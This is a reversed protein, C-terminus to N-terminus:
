AAAFHYCTITMIFGDSTQTLTMDTIRYLESITSTSETVQIIDGIELWPVAIAAFECIRDRSRMHYEARDSIEKCAAVTKAEPANLFLIKDSLINYYSASIYATEASVGDGNVIVKSYLDRDSITYGLSIIDEGEKFAYATVPTVEGIPIENEKIYFVKGTDDVHWAFGAIEALWGFADSYNELKFEKEGVTIGTVQTEISTFGVRTALDNFMFEPTKNTYKISYATGDRITQDLAKKQGDRCQLTLEAPFNNVIIDDTTGKFTAVLDQGYGQEVLVGVNPFLVNYWPGARDPSLWGDKNDFAISSSGAMSRNKSINISKARLSVEESTTGAGSVEGVGTHQLILANNTVTFRPEGAGFYSLSTVLTWNTYVMIDAYTITDLNFSYIDYPSGGIGAAVMYITGNISVFGVGRVANGDGSPWDTGWNTATMSAGYNTYYLLKEYSSSSQWSVLFSSDDIPLVSVGSGALYYFLSTPTSAGNNWTEGADTTYCCKSKQYIYSWSPCMIIWNTDSLCIIQGLNAGVQPLSRSWSTGSSLDTSIYNKLTFSAGLGDTDVWHECELIWNETGDELVVMSWNTIALHLIGNINTISTQINEYANGDKVKIPNAFVETGALIGAISPAFAVYVANNEVYSIVARGDSTEEMNGLGKVDSEGVFYRWTTWTTPDFLSNNPAGTITIRHNPSNAGLMSRSKLLTLKDAPIVRM